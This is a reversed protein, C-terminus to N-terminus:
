VIAAEKPDIKLLGLRNLALCYNSFIKSNTQSQEITSYSILTLPVCCWRLVCIVKMRVIM